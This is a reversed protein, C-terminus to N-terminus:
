QGPTSHAAFWAEELEALSEVITRSLDRAGRLGSSPSTPTIVDCMLEFTEGRKPLDSYTTQGLGRLYICLVRTGPVEQALKGVGYTFEERDLRGSRSRTGEPFIMVRHGSALLFRVKDMVRATEDPPGGRVIPLCKGMYCGLRLALGDGVNRREPLNWAFLREDRLFAWASGLAWLLVCSDILTLHNACVLLPGHRSGRGADRSAALKQHLESRFARLNPISYGRAFRMWGWALYWTVPTLARAVVRQLALTALDRRPLTPHLPPQSM